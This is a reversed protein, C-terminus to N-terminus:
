AESAASYTARGQSQVERLPALWEEAEAFWARPVRRARREDRFRMASPWVLAEFARTAARPRGIVSSSRLYSRAARVRRGMRQHRDGIWLHVGGAAALDRSARDSAYKADIIDLEAGIDDLDCSLGRDHVRYAILPRRVSALPAALALRIWLDYDACISLSEDFGGLIRVLEADALVGSGGSPIACHVLMLDAVEEASPPESHQFIKLDDDVHVDGACSWRAAPSGALAALQASLKDPAWIDDDDNFALWQGRAIAIGSNRAAAVGRRSAHRVITVRPDHIEAGAAAIDCQSGDDVIVVELEVDRQNLVAALTVNLYDPRNRTPIVVSV